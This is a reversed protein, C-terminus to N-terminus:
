GEELNFAVGMIGGGFDVMEAAGVKSLGSVTAIGDGVSLVTGVHEHKVDKHYSAIRDELSKLLTQSLSM